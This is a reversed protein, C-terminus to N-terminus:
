KEHSWINPGKEKNIQFNVLKYLLDKISEGHKIEIEYKQKLEKIQELTLIKTAEADLNVVEQPLREKILGEIPSIVLNFTDRPITFQNKHIKALEPSFYYLLSILLILATIFIPLGRKWIRWFNLNVQM